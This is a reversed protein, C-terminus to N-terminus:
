LDKYLELINGEPDKFYVTEIGADKNVNKEGFFEVGLCKLTNYAKDFDAPEFVIHRLGQTQLHKPAPVLESEPRTSGEVQLLDIRFGDIGMWVVVRGPRTYRRLEKFGLKEAYWKSLSDANRVSIAAHHIKLGLGNAQCQSSTPLFFLTAVAALAFCINKRKSATPILYFM